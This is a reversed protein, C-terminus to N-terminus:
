FLKGVTVQSPTPYSPVQKPVKIPGTIGMIEGTTETKGLARGQGGMSAINAEHLIRALVVGMRDEEQIRAQAEQYAVMTTTTEQLQNVATGLIQNGAQIVGRIGESSQSAAVAQQTARQNVKMAQVAAARVRAAEQMSDASRTRMGVYYKSIEPATLEYPLGELGTADRFHRVWNRETQALDYTTSQQTGLANM